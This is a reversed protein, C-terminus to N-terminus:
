TFKSILSPSLSFANCLNQSLFNLLKLTVVNTNQGGVSSLRFKPVRLLSTGSSCLSRAPTYPHFLETVCPPDSGPLSKLTILLLKYQIHYSIPLLHLKCLSFSIMWRKTCTLLQDTSNTCLSAQCHKNISPQFLSCQLLWSRLNYFLM